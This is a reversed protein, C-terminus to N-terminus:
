TVQEVGLLLDQKDKESVAPLDTDTGPLNCGKRSGLNGGNEVLGIVFDDGIEQIPPRWALHKAKVVDGDEIETKIWAVNEDIYGMILLTFDYNKLFSLVCDDTKVILCLQARTLNKKELFTSVQCIGGKTLVSILGDDIYIRKGPTLVQLRNDAILSQFSFSSINLIIFNCFSHQLDSPNPDRM